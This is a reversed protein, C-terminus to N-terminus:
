AALWAWLSAACFYCGFVGGGVAFVRPLRFPLTVPGKKALLVRGAVYFAATYLVFSAALWMPVIPSMTLIAVISVGAWVYEFLSFRLLARNIEGNRRLLLIAEAAQAGGVLVSTALYYPALPSSM